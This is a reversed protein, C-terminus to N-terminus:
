IGLDGRVYRGWWASYSGTKTEGELRKSTVEPFVRAEGARKMKQVYKLFGLSVVKSHLPVVRRSSGSKLSKDGGFTDLEVCPIGGVDKVDSVLMQGLEELRAGSFLSLLPLWYAAEGCGGIPRKGQTFVPSNFITKLHHSEYDSRKTQGEGVGRVKVGHAVNYDLYGNEVAWALVASVAHIAKQVAGPSLRKREPSDRETVEIIEQLPLKRIAHTTYAPLKAITEKFQSIDRKEIDQVPMDGHVETFRRVHTKFEKITKLPRDGDDKWKEYMALITDTGQPTGTADRLVVTPPEPPTDVVEGQQRQQTAQFARVEAKLVEYSLKQYSESSKQLEIGHIELLDDVEMEVMRTDGRALDRQSGTLAIGSSEVAKRFSRDNVGEQRVEDDEELIAHHHYAALREIDTDSLTVEQGKSDFEQDLESWILLYKKKAKSLDPTRTSRWITDSSYYGRVDLPVKRVVYWNQSGTRKRLGPFKAM